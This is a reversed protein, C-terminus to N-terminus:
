QQVQEYVDEMRVYYETGSRDAVILQRILEDGRDGKKLRITYGLLRMPIDEQFHRPLRVNVTKGVLRKFDEVRM